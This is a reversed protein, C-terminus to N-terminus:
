CACLSNYRGVSSHQSILTRHLTQAQKLDCRGALQASSASGTIRSSRDVAIPLSAPIPGINQLRSQPNSAIPILDPPTQLPLWDDGRIQQEQVPSRTVTM